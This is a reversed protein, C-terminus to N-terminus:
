PLLIVFLSLMACYFSCHIYMYMVSTVLKTRHYLESIESVSMIFKARGITCIFLIVYCKASMLNPQM